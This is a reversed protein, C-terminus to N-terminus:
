TLSRRLSNTLWTPPSVSRNQSTLYDPPGGESGALGCIALRFGLLGEWGPWAQPHAAVVALEDYVALEFDIGLGPEQQDYRDM